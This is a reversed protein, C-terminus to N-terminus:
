NMLVVAGFAVGGRIVLVPSIVGPEPRPPLTKDEFQGFVANGEVSVKWHEPVRIEIGGFAANTELVVRRTENSIEARRLNIEIGGFAATLTGGEFTQSEIRRKVQSFLAQENLRSGTSQSESSSGVNTAGRAFTDMFPRWQLRHILMVVGAAILALPWLINGRLHLLGLERLILLIGGLIAAGSWIRVATSPTRIAMLVGYALLAVPWIMGAARFPLIALNDIFMLSGAIVLLMGLVMGPKVPGECFRRDFRIRQRQEDM